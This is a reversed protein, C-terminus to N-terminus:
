QEDNLVEVDKMTINKKHDLLKLLVDKGKDTPADKYDMLEMDDWLISVKCYPLLQAIKLFLKNRYKTATFDDPNEFEKDFGLIVEEVNLYQLLIHMQIDTLESGCTALSFDDNGFYTHNQMVGKESELLLVKKCKKIKDQNIHIGYLTSGLPHSLFKGEICLPVYKGINNIDEQNLFRGRIGILRRNLDRHPIIIQNTKGWYGIEFESLVERSINDELFSKHPAYYFMELIKENIPELVPIGMNQKDKRLKGIWSWDDIRAISDNFEFEERGMGQIRSAVFNLAQYYTMNIGKNRKCRLVLEFISFSDSCDTYCHFIKGPYNKTPHHYYYLKFKSGGHCVTQFVLADSKKDVKPKESGLEMVINIVDEKALAETIADKDLYGAM